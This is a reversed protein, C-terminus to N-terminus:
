IEVKNFIKFGSSFKCAIPMSNVVEFLCLVSAKIPRSCQPQATKTSLNLAVLYFSTYTM